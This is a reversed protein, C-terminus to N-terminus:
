FRKIVLKSASDTSEKIRRRNDLRSAHCSLLGHRVFGIEHAAALRLWGRGTERMDIGLDGLGLVIGPGSSQAPHDDSQEERHREPKPQDPQNPGQGRMALAAVILAWRFVPRANEGAEAKTSASVPNARPPCRTGV